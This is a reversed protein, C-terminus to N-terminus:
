RGEGEAAPMGVAYERGKWSVRGQAHSKWSVVLVAAYLLVAPIYYFIRSVPFQNRALVAAYAAHRWVLLGLGILGLVPWGIGALLLLVPIWPVTTLLERRMGRSTSGMLTYLNKKWGEWMAGFTRYMRVQVVGAGPEFWLSFGAAKVRKALAVDELIEGAVSQHGQVAEYVVRHILLYQGNAAAVPSAPNNVADYSYRGALRCYIFPILAKEWWTRTLQVPSFSVLPVEHEAELQLARAASGPLHESDADTFLLWPLRAERAGVWAARNKGVWGAPLGESNVVRLQPIKEQMHRLVAATGDTSDDNVVIIEGIEPQRALSEVCAAVMAEENRAPVIASICARGPAGATASSVATSFTGNPADNSM